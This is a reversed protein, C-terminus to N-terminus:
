HATRPRFYLFLCLTPIQFSALSWQGCESSNPGVIKYEKTESNVDTIISNVIYKVFTCIELNSM